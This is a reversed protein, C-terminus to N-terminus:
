SVEVLDQADRIANGPKLFYELGLTILDEADEDNAATLTYATQFDMQFAVLGVERYEAPTVERARLPQLPEIQLGLTQATLHEVIGNILPYAGHRRDKESRLNSFLLFVSLVVGAKQKLKNQISAAYRLDTVRVHASPKAIGTPVSGIDIEIVNLGALSLVACANQEILIQM